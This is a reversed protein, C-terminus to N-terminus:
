ISNYYIYNEWKNNCYNKICIGKHDGVKGKNKLYQKTKIKNFIDSEIFVLPWNNDKQYKLTVIYKVNKHIGEFPIVMFKISDLSLENNDIIIEVKGLDNYYGNNFSRIINSIRRLKKNVNM